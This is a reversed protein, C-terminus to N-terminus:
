NKPGHFPTGSREPKSKGEPESLSIFLRRFFNTVPEFEVQLYQGINDANNM